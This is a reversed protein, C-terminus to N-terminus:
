SHLYRMNTKLLKKNHVHERDFVSITNYKELLDYNKLLFHVWKTQGDCYKVYASTKRLMIHLSKM